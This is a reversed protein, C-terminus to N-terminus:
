LELSRSRRSARSPMTLAHSVKASRCRRFWSVTSTESAGVGNLSGGGGGSCGGFGGGTSSGPFRGGIFSVSAHERHDGAIHSPNILLVRSLRHEYTPSGVLGRGFQEYPAGITTGSSALESIEVRHPFRPTEGHNPQCARREYPLETAVRM